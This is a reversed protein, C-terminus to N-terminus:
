SYDVTLFTFHWYMIKLFLIEFIFVKPFYPLINQYNTDAIDLVLYNFSEPFNPKIFKSQNAERVCIIHTIGDDILEQLKCKIASRYPGLYLGPIIMQKERRMLYDWPVTSDDIPLSCSVNKDFDQDMDKSTSEYFTEM